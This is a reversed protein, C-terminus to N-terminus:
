PFVFTSLAVSARSGSGCSVSLAGRSWSAHDPVLDISLRMSQGPGLSGLSILGSRDIASGSAPREFAGLYSRDVALSADVCGRKSTVDIVLEERQNLLARTPYEVGLALDESAAEARARGLFVGSAAAAPLTAVLVLCAVLQRTVVLHPRIAPPEELRAEM